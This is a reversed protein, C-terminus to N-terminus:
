VSEWICNRYEMDSGGFMLIGEGNWWFYELWFWLTKPSLVGAMGSPGFCSASLLADFSVMPELRDVTSLLRRTRQAIDDNQNLSVRTM